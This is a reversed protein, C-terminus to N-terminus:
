YLILCLFDTFTFFFKDLASCLADFSSIEIPIKDQVLNKSSAKEVAQEAEKAPSDYHKPM